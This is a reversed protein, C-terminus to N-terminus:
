AFCYPYVDSFGAFCYILVWYLMSLFLFVSLVLFKYKFSDKGLKLNNFLYPVAAIGFYCFYLGIRDLFLFYFGVFQLLNGISTLYILFRAKISDKDLFLLSFLCVLSFVLCCINTYRGGASPTLYFMYRGLTSHFTSLVSAGFNVFVFISVFILVYMITLAKNSIYNKSFNRFPFICMAIIATKHFSIAIIFYLFFKLKEKNALCSFALFIFSLALSQRMGNLSSCYFFILYVFWGLILYKKCSCFKLLGFFTAIGCLLSVLFFAFNYEKSIFSSFMMLIQWGAEYPLEDSFCQFIQSYQEIHEFASIYTETDTGVTKDRMGALLAPLVISLSYLFFRAPNRFYIALQFLMLSFLFCFFYEMM